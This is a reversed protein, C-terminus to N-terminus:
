TLSLYAWLIPDVSGVDPDNERTVLLPRRRDQVKIAPYTADRWAGFKKIGSARFDAKMKQYARCEAERFDKIPIHADTMLQDRELWIAKVVTKLKQFSNSPTLQHTKTLWRWGHVMFVDRLAPKGDHQSIYEQWIEDLGTKGSWPTNPIVGQPAPPPNAPAPPPASSPSAAPITSPAEVPRANNEVIRGLHELLERPLQGGSSAQHLASFLAAKEAAWAAKEAAWAAEKAVFAAEKADFTAERRKQQAIQVPM